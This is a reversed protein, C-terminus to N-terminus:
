LWVFCQQLKAPSPEVINNGCLEGYIMATAVAPTVPNGAAQKRKQRMRVEFVLRCVYNLVFRDHAYKLANLCAVFDSQGCM